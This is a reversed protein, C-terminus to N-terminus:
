ITAGKKMRAWVRLLAEQAMDEAMDPSPALIRALRILAPMLDTLTQADSTM